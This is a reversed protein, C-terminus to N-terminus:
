ETSCSYCIDIVEQFSKVKAYRKNWIKHLYYDNLQKATLLGNDFTTVTDEPIIIDFGYEFGVKCTADICYDTQMGTLIITHYEKQDLYDKLGTKRFASNFRKDFIKEGPAPAIQEYIQWGRTNLELDSGAGDDHRVYIV